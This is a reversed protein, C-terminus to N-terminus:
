KRKSTRGAGGGVAADSGHPIGASIAAGVDTTGNLLSVFPRLSTYDIATVSGPDVVIRQFMDLHMGLADAVISKIIDAHSVILVVAGDGVESQARKAWQRVAFVARTQAALMSEGNPFNVSSPHAQVALWLPDKALRKLKKGTWDGYDCESLNKDKTLTPRADGVREMRILRATEVTRELPSTVIHTLRVDRLAQGVSVAQAVGVEDLQVGPTRGALVGSANATTRGHRVLLVRTM